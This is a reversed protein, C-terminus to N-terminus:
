PGPIEECTFRFKSIWTVSNVGFGNFLEVAQCDFGYLFVLLRDMGGYPYVATSFKLIGCSEELEELGDFEVELDQQLYQIMKKFNSNPRDPQRM